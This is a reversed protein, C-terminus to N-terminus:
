LPKNRGTTKINLLQLMDMRTIPHMLVCARRPSDEAPNRGDILAIPFISHFKIIDPVTDFTDNTRLGTGLTYKSTCHSYRIQINFVRNEYFVALVLPEQCTCKSCDRVLFAGDRNVLHLAHDAEVRSFDGVYWDSMEAPREQPHFDIHDLDDKDQPWEHHHRKMSHGDTLGEKRPMQRSDFLEQSELDLSLRQPLRGRSGGSPILGKSYAKQQRQHRLLAM